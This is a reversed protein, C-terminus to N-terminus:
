INSKSQLVVISSEGRRAKQAVGVTDSARGAGQGPSPGFRNRFRSYNKKEEGGSPACLPTSPRAGRLPLLSVRAPRRISNCRKVPISERALAFDRYRPRDDRVAGALMLSDRQDRWRYGLRRVDRVRLANTIDFRSEADFDDGGSRRLAVVLEVKQARSICGSTCRLLLLLLHSPGFHM